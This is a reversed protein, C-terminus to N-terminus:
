MPLSPQVGRVRQLGEKQKDDFDTLLRLDCFIPSIIGESYPTSKLLVIHNQDLFHRFNRYFNM